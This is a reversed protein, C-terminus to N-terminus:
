CLSKGTKNAPLSLVYNLVLFCVSSILRFLQPNTGEAKDLLLYILDLLEVDNTTEMLENIRDIYYEKM